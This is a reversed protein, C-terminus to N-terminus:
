AIRTTKKPLDPSQSLGFDITAPVPGISAWIIDYPGFTDCIFGAEVAEEKIKKYSLKLQKQNTVLSM